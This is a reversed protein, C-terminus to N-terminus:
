VGLGPSACGGVHSCEAGARFSVCLGGGLVNSGGLVKNYMFFSM